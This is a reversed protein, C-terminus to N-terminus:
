HKVLHKSSELFIQIFMFHSFNWEWHLPSADSSHVEQSWRTDEFSGRLPLSASKYSINWLGGGVTVTYILTERGFQACEWSIAESAQFFLSVALPSIDIGHWMTSQLFPTIPFDGKYIGITQRSCVTGCSQFTCNDNTKKIMFQPYYFGRDWLVTTTVFYFLYIFQNHYHTAYINKFM